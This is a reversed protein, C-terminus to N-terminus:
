DTILECMFTVKVDVDAPSLTLCFGDQSLRSDSASIVGFTSDNLRQWKWQLYAGAGFASRLASIDTIRQSGHYIVATLVTAVANNKFVTGRSSDIRLVTADRGKAGSLCTAASESTSGDAYTTVTKQWMYKGDEWPPATASWGSSPATSSSSSLAYQVSVSAVSTEKLEDIDENIAQVRLNIGANSSLDLQEGFNAAVHSTTITGAKINSGEITNAAIRDGTISGALIENATITAAAIQEATVSRAVLVTGSLQQKYNDQTLEQATLTGSQANIEYVLGDNGTIILRETALTGSQIVDANLFVIKGETISADAIQATGVAGQQILAATIAGLAIQATDVALNAIKANTIAGDAIKAANVALDDIQGTGVALNAIKARTIAADAIKVSSVAADKIKAGEITADVIKANDISANQIKANTVAEDAIKASTVALDAIHATAIAAEQIHATEIAAM